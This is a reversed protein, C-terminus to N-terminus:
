YLSAYVLLIELAHIKYEERITCKELLLFEQNIDHSRTVNPKM